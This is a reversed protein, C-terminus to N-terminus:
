SYRARADARTGIRRRASSADSRAPVERIRAIEALNEDTFVLKGKGWTLHPFEHNAAGTRLWSESCHLLEAAQQPEFFEHEM